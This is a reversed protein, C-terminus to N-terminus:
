KVKFLRGKVIEKWDDEEFYDYKPAFSITCQTSSAKIHCFSIQDWDYITEYITTSLFLGSSYITWHAIGPADGSRLSVVLGSLAAPNPEKVM